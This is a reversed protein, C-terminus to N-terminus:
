NICFAEIPDEFSINWEKFCTIAQPNQFVNPTPSSAYNISERWENLLINNTNRIRKELINM